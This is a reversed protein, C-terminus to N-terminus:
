WGFRRPSLTFLYLLGLLLGLSPALRAVTQFSIARIACCSWNINEPNYERVGWHYWGGLTKSTVLPLYTHQMGIDFVTVRKMVTHWLRGLSVLDYVRNCVTSCLQLSCSTSLTYSRACIVQRTQPIHQLLIQNLLHSMHPHRHREVTSAHRIVIFFCWETGYYKTVCVFYHEIFFFSNCIEILIFELSYTSQKVTYFFLLFSACKRKSRETVEISVQACRWFGFGCKVMM